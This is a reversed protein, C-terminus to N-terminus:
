PVYLRLSLYERVFGAELFLGAGATSAAREGDIWDLTLTNRPRRNALVRLAAVARALADDSAGVLTRLRRGNGDIYFVPDSGAIVVAAGAARRPGRGEVAHYEPWPLLWGFPNAPDTAALVLADGPEADDRIRRLRDIVGPYAFQAGGLGDVFYGRRIKGAEEMGRLVGFV